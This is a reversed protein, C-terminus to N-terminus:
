GIDPRTFGLHALYIIMRYGDRQGQESKLIELFFVIKELALFIGKVESKERRKM